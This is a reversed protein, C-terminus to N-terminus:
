GKMSPYLNSAVSSSDPPGGTVPEGEDFHTSVKAMFRIFAPNNGMGTLDFAQRLEDGGFRDVMKQIRGLTPELQKGGIEKDTEVEKRWQEQTQHWLESGKESAAKMAEAQLQVLAAAADRSMGHENAIELFKDRLGEDVEFGEPVEIAEATLPEPAAPEDKAPESAAPETTPETKPDDRTPETTKSPEAAPENTNVNDEIM